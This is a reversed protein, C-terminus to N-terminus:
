NNYKKNIKQKYYTDKNQKCKTEHSLGCIM